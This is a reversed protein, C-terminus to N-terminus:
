NGSVVYNTHYKALNFESITCNQQEGMPDYFTLTSWEVDLGMPKTVKHLLLIHDEQLSYAYGLFPRLFKGESLQTSLIFFLTILTFAILTFLKKM